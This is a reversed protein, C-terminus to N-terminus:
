DSEGDSHLAQKDKKPKKRKVGHAFTCTRDFKKAWEMGFKSRAHDPRCLAARDFARHEACMVRGEFRRHHFFHAWPMCFQALYAFACITSITCNEHSSKELKSRNRKIKAHSCACQAPAELPDRDRLKFILNAGEFDDFFMFITPFWQFDAFDGWFVHKKCNELHCSSKWAELGPGKRLAQEIRTCGHLFWACGILIRSIIQM